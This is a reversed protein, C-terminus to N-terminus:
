DRQAESRLHRAALQSRVSQEGDACDVVAFHASVICSIRRDREKSRARGQRETTGRLIGHSGRVPVVPHIGERLAHQAHSAIGRPRVRQHGAHPEALAVASAHGGEFGHAKGRKRKAQFFRGRKPNPKPKTIREPKPKHKPRPKPKSKRERDGGDVTESGSDVSTERRCERVADTEGGSRAGERKRRGGGGEKRENERGAVGAVARRGPAAHVAGWGVAVSAAASEASGRVSGARCLDDIM